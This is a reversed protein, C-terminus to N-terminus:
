FHRRLGEAAIVIVAALLLYLAIDQFLAGWFIIVPPFGGGKILLWEFPYGYFDGLTLYGYGINVFDWRITIVFALFNFFACLIGIMFVDQLTLSLRDNIRVVTRGFRGALATIRKLGHLFRLQIKATWTNQRELKEVAKDLIAERREFQGYYYIRKSQLDEKCHPCAKADEPVLLGCASCYPAYPTWTLSRGCSSCTSQEDTWRVKGCYPCHRGRDLPSVSFVDTAVIESLFLWLYGLNGSVLLSFGLVMMAVGLFGSTNYVAYRNQIIFVFSLVTMALGLTGSTGASTGRSGFLPVGLFTVLSLIVAMLLTYVPYAGYSATFYTQFFGSAVQMLLFFTSFAAILMAGTEVLFFTERKSFTKFTPKTYMRISAVLVLLGGFLSILYLISFASLVIVLFSMFCLSMVNSLEFSKPGFPLVFLYGIIALIIFSPIFVGIFYTTVESTGVRFLSSFLSRSFLLYIGVSFGLMAGAEVIYGGIKITKALREATVREEM